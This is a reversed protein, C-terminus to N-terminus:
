RSLYGGDVPYYSGTVFSARDSSLFGVVEAVEEETVRNRLLKHGTEREREATDRGM